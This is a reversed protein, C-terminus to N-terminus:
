KKSILWDYTKQLGVSLNTKPEWHLIQHIKSINMQRARVNDIDRKNIHKAPIKSNAVKAIMKYLQNVSTAVQTGVNFIENEAKASVAAILMAEVIDDIYTFDRTQEGDGYINPIEKRILADFFKSIVGCYPNSPSQNAGYVNSFRLSTSSVGFSEYYATCLFEGALKSAAYPSLPYIRHNESIPIEGPNGYVSASSAYVVRQVGCKKAALLINKTGSANVEFDENPNKTSVIINRVALHFIFDKRKVAENVIRQNTVTNKIFEIDNFYYINEQRGTFLDDLVTVLAGLEILLNVLNSGIFGAGGTVLVKKGKWNM